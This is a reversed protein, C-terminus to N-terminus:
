NSSPLLFGKTIDTYKVKHSFTSGHLGLHNAYFNMAYKGRPVILNVDEVAVVIEGVTNEVSLHNTINDLYKQAYNIKDEVHEPVEVALRIEELVDGEKKKTEGDEERDEKEQLTIVIDQKRGTANLIADHNIELIMKDKKQQIIRFKDDEQEIRGFHIGQLSQMLQIQLM